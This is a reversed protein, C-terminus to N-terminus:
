TGHVDLFGQRDLRQVGFLPYFFLREATIAGLGLVRFGKFGQLGLVM